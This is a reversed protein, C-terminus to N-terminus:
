HQNEHEEVERILEAAYNNMLESCKLYLEFEENTKAKVAHDIFESSIKVLMDVKDFNEKARNRM